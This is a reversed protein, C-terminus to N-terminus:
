LSFDLTQERGNRLITVAVSNATTLSKLAELAQFPKDLGIGNIKTFIDSDQFNLEDLLREGRLAKLKFGINKGNQQVPISQFRQALALPNSAFTQRYNRLLNTNAVSSLSNISSSNMGQRPGIDDPKELNLREFKGYRNILIHDKEIAAVIINDALADDIRYLQSDNVKIEVIANSQEAINSFYIGRLKYNLQTEPALTSQVPKVSVVAAKGFLFGQNILDAQQRYSTPQAIPQRATILPNQSVLDAGSSIPYLSWFLISSQYALLSLFILLTLYRTQTNALLKILYDQLL